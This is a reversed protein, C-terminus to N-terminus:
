GQGPGGRRGRKGHRDQMRQRHEDLQERQEPTLVQYVQSWTTMGQVMMETHLVSQQAAFARVAAEDFAAPDFSEHFAQRQSQTQERLAEMGPRAAEVIAQIQAEQEETLDLWSAAHELFRELHPGGFGDPGHMGPGGGAFPGPGDGDCDPRGGPGGAVVLIPLAAVALTLSLILTLTRRNTM